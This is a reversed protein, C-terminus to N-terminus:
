CGMINDCWSSNCLSMMYKSPVAICQLFPSSSKGGELRPNVDDTQINSHVTLAGSTTNRTFVQIAYSNYAAVYVHKGDASVAVGSAGDLFIDVGNHVITQVWEIHGTWASTRHWVTLSSNAGNSFGTIYVHQSDPSVAVGYASSNTPIKWTKM